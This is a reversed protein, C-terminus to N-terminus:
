SNGGLGAPLLTKLYSLKGSQDWHEGNNAWHLVQSSLTLSMEM